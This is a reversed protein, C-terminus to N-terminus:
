TFCRDLVKQMNTGLILRKDEESINAYVLWGLQPRPDRMPADTGYLIRDAGVEKVLYEISGLTVSTYTLQLYCNPYKKAYKAYEVAVEM